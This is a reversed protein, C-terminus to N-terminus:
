KDAYFSHSLLATGQETTIRFEVRWAMKNSSCAPLLLRGYIRNSEIHDVFLPLVGMAMDVGQVTASAQHIALPTDLELSFALPHEPRIEDSEIRWRGTIPHETASDAVHLSCYQNTPQCALALQVEAIQTGANDPPQCAALPLLACSVVKACWTTRRGLIKACLLM